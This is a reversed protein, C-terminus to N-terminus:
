SLILRREPAATFGIGARTLLSTFGAVPDAAGRDLLQEIERILEATGGTARLAALWEGRSLVGDARNAAILPKLWAAFSGGSAREAVLSLIAGCAYATRDEGRQQASEIGRGATLKMCDDLARQLEVRPDYNRDIAAVTRIALLDAGGEILWAERSFQYRVTQGLWFHASEHAIFWRAQNRVEAREELMGEGEFTMTVLNPLVSGGMSVVGPTAGQWSAMVTPTGGPAPGLRRAHDALIEATSRALFDRLWAPLGPDVIASLASTSIPRAPGFLVYTGADDLSLVQYRKGESLVRGGEDRFIVRTPPGAARVDDLDIPLAAAEAASAVPFAKFQQDFLAVSGDTFVLAADYGTLIDEAFPKFRVRVREPVPRGDDTVFVDYWGHRELRVGPTEITWSEPRWSKQSVRAPASRAFVWVPARQHFHFDAAWRPGNRVVEVSAVPQPAGRKAGSAAVAAVPAAALALLLAAVLRRLRM